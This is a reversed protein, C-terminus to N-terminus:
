VSSKVLSSHPHPGFLSDRLGVAVARDELRLQADEWLKGLRVDIDERLISAGGPEPTIEGFVIGQEREYLDVRVFPTMIARSLTEAASVLEALHRPSPLRSDIPLDARAQGLDTGDPDFFRYVAGKERSLRGIVEIMGIAGQFCFVKYDPLVKLGTGPPARLLEELLVEASALGDRKLHELRTVVQESSLPQPSPSLLDLYGGKERVLPMVGRAVTGIVTKLVFEDLGHDWPIDRARVYEGYVQPIPVGHSLAFRYAAAKNNLQWVPAKGAVEPNDARVRSAERLKYYFSSQGRESSLARIVADRRAVPPLHRFWDKLMM